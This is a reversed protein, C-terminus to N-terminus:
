ASRQRTDGRLRAGMRGMLRGADGDADICRRHNAWMAAESSKEALGENRRLGVLEDFSYRGDKYWHDMSKDAEVRLLWHEPTTHLQPGHTTAICGIIEAM